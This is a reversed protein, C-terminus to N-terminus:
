EIERLKLPKFKKGGGEFSYHYWELFNLRLGHIVGSMVGLVMNLLHGAAILMAAFVFPLFVTVDNITASLISSSLGLAYLRLYSLVDGFVQIVNMLELLGLWGNKIVALLVALPIGFYIMQLGIAAATEFPIGLLYNVFTPANVFTPFYLFGGILFLVWGSNGWHKPLYRILGLLIHTVGIVLALELLIQDNLSSMLGYSKIGKEETYGKELINQSAGLEKLSPYEKIWEQYVADNLNQHYEAKREALYTILSFKRIPNDPDINMGFFSTTLFGWGICAICLMTFLNLMRKKVGKLTPHKYRIYLALGLFASGYGGDGIIVAFFLLFWFLVWLSPDKDTTSPTDYIAILDEGIKGVANNELYTPVADSEEIAIEELHVDLDKALEELAKIQNVPVFGTVAFLSHDLIKKSAEEAQKLDMQNLALYLARHLSSNFRALSHLIRELERKEIEVDKLRNKLNALSTPIKIEIMGPYLQLSRSLAVFYDLSNDSGIYIIEELGESQKKEEKKACFFRIFLHGHKEIYQIDDLSFDGFIHIRAIELQLIRAEEELQDIAHKTQVIKEATSQFSSDSLEEQEKPPQARIVKIANLYLNVKDGYMEKKYPAELFHIAGLKQAEEFFHTKQKMLGVFLFKEVDLRM